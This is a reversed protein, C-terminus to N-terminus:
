FFEEDVSNTKLVLKHLSCLITSSFTNLAEFQVAKMNPTQVM